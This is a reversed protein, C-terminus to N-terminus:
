LAETARRLQMLKRRARIAGADSALIVPKAEWFDEDGFGEQASRIMPEDETLFVRRAFDGVEQSPAHTFFYHTSDDSAPTLIHPNQMLPILMDQHESGSRAFGIFLAMSAPAHWRIHLWQDMAEGERLLPKMQDTPPADAIDWNCWIAGTEDSLVQMKGHNLIAGNTGFSERHIFEVHTLDMLNDTIFEYNVSMSIYAKQQNPDDVFAFDPITAPNAQAPDGPWFWLIGDREVIPYTRVKAAPPLDGGLPAHVCAGSRDFALGHYGCTVVGDQLTGMSLAAFRHPCRDALMAWSGDESRYWLLKEGLLKRAFLGGAPVEEAWGAMYWLNRVFTSM